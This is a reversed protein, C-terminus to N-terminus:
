ASFLQLFRAYAENWASQTSADPEYTEIPFSNRVAARAESLNTFAGAAILQMLVNGIASGETPGAWVTKGIANATFQCLLTNNIGGGTMHLGTFSKQALIETLGLDMKYKLALSELICRIIQGETQPVSQNSAKCYQKIQAPMDTPNLFMADDPNILCLFPEAQEAQKVLDAFSHVNGAKDWTRKCEQLLWLGMINKLLRFTNEVGGENTFNHKLALEELVPKELETGLLSWTGCILYAFDKTLAPVAAVASATDHEGVAIVPISNVGLEECVSAQLKGVTSGPAVIDVLLESPLGLIDLLDRDWNGSIPNYMQTTSANTFESHMEGTLFYRLLDPIMLLKKGYKLAFSDTQKMAVLQYLTNFPQFQIGTRTFIREKGLQQTVQEMVGNNRRDRYHTPNEILEGQAGIIGFDVAWSDIGLSQIPIQKMKAKLIGQKIEHYLRLIDWQLREGVLVPDNPFRHIEELKLLEGDWQGIMARGSSAGLDFALVSM